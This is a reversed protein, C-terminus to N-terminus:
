KRLTNYISLTLVLFLIVFPLIRVVRRFLWIWRSAGTLALRGGQNWFVLAFSILVIGGLVLAFWLALASGLLLHLITQM